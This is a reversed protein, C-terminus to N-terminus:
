YKGNRASMYILIPAVAGPDPLGKPGSSIVSYAANSESDVVVVAPEGFDGYPEFHSVYIGYEKSVKLGPDSLLPFTLDYKNKLFLHNEQTDYSISLIKVGLDDLSGTFDQWTTLSKKTTPCFKGRFFLLVVAKGKYSALSHEKGNQDALTFLPAPESNKLM